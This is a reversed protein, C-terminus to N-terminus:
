EGYFVWWRSSGFALATFVGIIVLLFWAMAAAYGMHYNVFAQQYLYLSYFLTSNAPAGSGGSIVYASTFSQFARIIALVGNFLIVPSLMPLTVHWFRALAGAGDVQAAEYYHDPIQRLGALFIVMTGGFTWVNLVVLTSLATSPDGLWSPGTIGLWSLVQNIMGGTSFVQRWLVALAVSAGLLTPLYFLTRYVALGKLGRNLMIALLLAAILLIPVSVGVYTFTVRLSTYFTPDQTFMRVYNSVGTWVPATFLDYSTLSLWASALLPGMTVGVVGILWPLLFITAALGDRGFKKKHKKPAAAAPGSRAPPAAPRRAPLASSRVGLAASPSMLLDRKRTM